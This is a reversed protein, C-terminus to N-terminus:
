KKDDNELIVISIKLKNSIRHLQNTKIKNKINWLTQRSIGFRKVDKPKLELIRPILDRLKRDFEEKNEYVAYSKSDLGLIENEDLNNSEKGIHLIGTIKVHKRQLIGTDGYVYQAGM